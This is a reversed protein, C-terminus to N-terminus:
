SYYGQRYVVGFQEMAKVTLGGVKRLFGITELYPKSDSYWARRAEGLAHEAALIIEGMSMEPVMDPREPDASMADQYSREGSLAEFVMERTSARHPQEACAADAIKYVDGLLSPSGAHEALMGRIAELASM